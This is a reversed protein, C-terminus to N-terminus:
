FFVKNWNYVDEKHLSNNRMLLQRMICDPGSEQSSKFFLLPCGCSLRQEEGREGCGLASCAKSFVLMAPSAGEGRLCCIVAGTCLDRGQPSCSVFDWHLSCLSCFLAEPFLQM